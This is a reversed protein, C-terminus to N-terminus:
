DNLTVCWPRTSRDEGALRGPPSGGPDADLFSSPQPGAILPGVPDLGLNIGCTEDADGDPHFPIGNGSDNCEVMVFWDFEGTPLESPLFAVIFTRILSTPDPDIRGADIRRSFLVSDPRTLGENCSVGVIRAVYNSCTEEVRHQWSFNVSPAAQDFSYQEFEGTEGPGEIGTTWCDQLANVGFGPLSAAPFLVALVLVALPYRISM